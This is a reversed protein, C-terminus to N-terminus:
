PPLYSLLSGINIINPLTRHSFIHRCVFIMKFLVIIRTKKVNNKRIEISLNFSTHYVSLPWISYQGLMNWASLDTRSIFFLSIFITNSSFRRLHRGIGVGNTSMRIWVRDYGILRIWKPAYIPQLNNTKVQLDTQAGKITSRVACTGKM